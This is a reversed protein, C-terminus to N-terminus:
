EGGSMKKYNLTKRIRGFRSMESILVIQKGDIDEEKIYDESGDDFSVLYEQLKTNFYELKGTHWGTEYLGKIKQGVLKESFSRDSENDIRENVENKDSDLDLTEEALYSTFLDDASIVDDPEPAEPPTEIDPDQTPGAMNLPPMVKYNLLGEPQVNEDNSGDATLLCGTKEFCRWRFHDYDSSKITEFAEGVWQTILIRVDMQKIKKGNNGMWLDINDDKELWRDQAQSALKKILAGYGSDVPQWIDTAGAFYFLM